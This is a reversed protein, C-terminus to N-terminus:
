ATGPTAPLKSFDMYVPEWVHGDIDEFARSYMWGHDQPQRPEKGGLSVAKDVLADVEDRSGVALANLVEVSAHADAIKKQTFTQFFAETLLMAYINPGLELAGAKDDTFQPNFTFGMSQWFAMTKALDKIPLNVFIQSVM